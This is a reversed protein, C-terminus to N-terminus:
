GGAKPLSGRMVPSEAGFGGKGEVGAKTRTSGLALCIVKKRSAKREKAARRELAGRSPECCGRRRSWASGKGRSCVVGDTVQM